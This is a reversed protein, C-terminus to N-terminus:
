FMGSILKYLGFLIALGGFGALVAGHMYATPGEMEYGWKGRSRGTLLAKVGFGVLVLGLLIAGGGLVAPHEDLWQNIEENRALLFISLPNM